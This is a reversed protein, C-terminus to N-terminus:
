LFSCDVKYNVGGGSGVAFEQRTPERLLALQGNIVKLMELRQKSIIENNSLIFVGMTISTYQIDDKKRKGGVTHFHFRKITSIYNAVTVHKIHEDSRYM